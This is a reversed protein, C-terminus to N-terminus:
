GKILKNIEETIRKMNQRIECLRSNAFGLILGKKKESGIYSRSLPSHMINRQLLAESIKEEDPALPLLELVLHMGAGNDYPRCWQNLQQSEELIVDLKEAYLQRMRKVHRSFHGGQMFAATVAQGHLAIDGTHEMRAKTFPEVLAPPMILYGLRLAPFLVKSFSGIYIVQHPALGQLCALPRHRYHYESDYDDEIIWCNQKQAWQLLETRRQLSLVGGLPYQNAPTLYILRPSTTVSDLLEAQLGQYDVPCPKISAGAAQLARRAGVYGPEEIVAEEGPNVLMRAALDLSQQAGTTIVVQSADCKVSRASRVYDAVAERLEHYGAPDGFGMLHTFGAQPIQQALRNWVKAPFARLDPVGVAFGHSYGNDRITQQKMKFAYDSLLATKDTEIYQNEVPASCHWDEPLVAAVYTGSGERTQLYGEALLQEYAAIVTNRAVKLQSALARSSPLRTEPLLAGGLIKERLALYLQHFLPTNRNSDLSIGTLEMLPM